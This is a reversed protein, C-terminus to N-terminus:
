ANLGVVLWLVSAGISGLAIGLLVLLTQRLKAPKAYDVLVDRIGVWMHTLLVAFFVTLAIRMAPQALWANWSPYSFSPRTMFHGLVYVLFVLLFIASARQLWWAKLGAPRRKM